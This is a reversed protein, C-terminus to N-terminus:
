KNSEAAAMAELDKIRQSITELEEQMSKAEKKLMEAEQQPTVEPADPGEYPSGYYPAEGYPYGWGNGVWGFRQWRGRGWGRGLGFGRGRSYFQNMYGPRGYGGCYGAGRGTMPGLGIPGTGDGGPMAFVERGKYKQSENDKTNIKIICYGRSGGTMPGQGIPGTGNFGPM